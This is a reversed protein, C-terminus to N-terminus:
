NSKPQPEATSGVPPAILHFSILRFAVVGYTHGNWWRWRRRKIQGCFSRPGAHCEGELTLSRCNSRRLFVVIRLIRKGGPSPRPGSKCRKGHLGRLNLESVKQAKYGLGASVIPRPAAHLWDRWLSFIFSGFAQSQWDWVLSSRTARNRTLLYTLLYTLLRCKYRVM